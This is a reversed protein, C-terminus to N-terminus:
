ATKIDALKIHVISISTNTDMIAAAYQLRIMLCLVLFGNGLSFAQSWSHLLTTQERSGQRKIQLGVVRIPEGCKGEAKPLDAQQLAFVPFSALGKSRFGGINPRCVTINRGTAPPPCVRAFCTDVYTHVSM